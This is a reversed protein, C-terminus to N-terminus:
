RWKPARAVGLTLQPGSGVQRRPGWGWAWGWVIRRIGLTCGLLGLRRHDNLAVALAEAERLYTLIRRYDGSPQLASRLALRLDIAQECGEGVCGLEDDNKTLM